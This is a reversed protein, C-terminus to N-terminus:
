HAPHGRGVLGPRWLTAGPNLRVVLKLTPAVDTLRGQERRLLFMVLAYIGEFGWGFARGLESAEELLQEAREM